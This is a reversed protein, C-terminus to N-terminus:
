GLGFCGRGTLRSHDLSGLWGQSRELGGEGRSGGTWNQDLIQFDGNKFSLHRLGKYNLVRSESVAAFGLFAQIQVELDVSLFELREAFEFEM